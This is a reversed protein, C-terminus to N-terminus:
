LKNLLLAVVRRPSISVMIYTLLPSITIKPSNHPRRSYEELTEGNHYRNLWKYATKRSIDFRRCLESINCDENLALKIFELKQSIPALEKWPM